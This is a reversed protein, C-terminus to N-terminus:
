KAVTFKDINKLKKAKPPKPKGTFKNPNSLYEEYAKRYSKFDKCVQRIISQLAPNNNLENKLKKMSNLLESLFNDSKIINSIKNLKQLKEQNNLTRKNLKDALLSYLISENHPYYGLQEKLKHILIILMNPFHTLQITFPSINKLRNDYIYIRTIVKM